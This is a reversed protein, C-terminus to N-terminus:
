RRQHEQVRKYVHELKPHKDRFERLFESLKAANQQSVTRQEAHNDEHCGPAFLMEVRFHEWNLECYLFALCVELADELAQTYEESETTM